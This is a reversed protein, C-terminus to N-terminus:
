GITVRRCLSCLQNPILVSMSLRQCVDLIHLKVSKEVTRRHCQSQTHTRPKDEMLSIEHCWGITHCLLYLNVDYTALIRQTSIPRYHAKQVQMESTIFIFFVRYGIYLLTRIQINWPRFVLGVRKRFFYSRLPM